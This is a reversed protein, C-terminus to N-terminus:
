KHAPEKRLHYTVNAPNWPALDDTKVPLYEVYILDRLDNEESRDNIRNSTKNSEIGSPWVLIKCIKDASYNSLKQGTVTSLLETIATIRDPNCSIDKAAYKLQAGLRQLSRVSKLEILVPFVDGDKVGVALIDCRVIKPHEKDDPEVELNNDGFSVEDLAFLLEDFMGNLCSLAGIGLLSRNNLLGQKILHSQMRREQKSSFTKKDLPKPEFKFHEIATNPVKHSSSNEYGCLASEDALSVARVGEGNIRIYQDNQARETENWGAFKLEDVLRKMNRLRWNIMENRVSTEPKKFEQNM